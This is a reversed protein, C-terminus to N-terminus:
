ETRKTKQEDDNLWIVVGGMENDFSNLPMLDLPPDIHIKNAMQQRDQEILRAICSSSPLAAISKDKGFWAAWEACHVGMLKGKASVLPGGSDGGRAPLNAYVREMGDPYHSVSLVQGAFCVNKLVGWNTLNSSLLQIQSSGVGIAADDANYEAPSAPAFINRLEADVHIIALDYEKAQGSIKAVVRPIAIKVSKGDFFVLYRIPFDVCHAATLFYGNTDIAAAHGLVLVQNTEPKFEVSLVQDTSNFASMSLGCLLVATRQKLFADLPQGAIKVGSNAEFSVSRKRDSAWAPKHSACGCLALAAVFSIIATQIQKVPSV